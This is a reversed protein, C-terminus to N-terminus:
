YSLISGGSMVPRNQQFEHRVRATRTPKQKKKREAPRRCWCWKFGAGRGFVALVAVSGVISADGDGHDSDSTMPFTLVGVGDGTIVTKCHYGIRGAKGVIIRVLALPRFIGLQHMRFRIFPFVPLGIYTCVCQAIQTSRSQLPRLIAVCTEIARRMEAHCLGSGLELSNPPLNPLIPDTPSCGSVINCSGCQPPSRHSYM